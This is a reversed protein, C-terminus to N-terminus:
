GLRRRIREERFSEIVFKSRGFEGRNERERWFFSISFLIYNFYFYFVGGLIVM